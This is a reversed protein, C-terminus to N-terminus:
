IKFSKIETETLARDYVACFNSKWEGTCYWDDIVYQGIRYNSSTGTSLQTNYTGLVNGDKYVTLVSGDYVFALIYSGPSLDLWSANDNSWFHYFTKDTNRGWGLGFMQNYSPSGGDIFQINSASITSQLVFTRASNGTMVQSDFDFYKGNGYTFYGDNDATINGNNTATIINNDFM